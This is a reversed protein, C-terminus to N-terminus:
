SKQIITGHEDHIRVTVNSPITVQAPEYLNHVVASPIEVIKKTKTPEVGDEFVFVAKLNGKEDGLNSFGYINEAM